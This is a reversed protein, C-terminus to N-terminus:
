KGSGPLGGSITRISNKTSIAPDKIKRTFGAKWNARQSNLKEERKKLRLGIKQLLKKSLYYKYKAM